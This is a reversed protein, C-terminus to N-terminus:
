SLTERQRVPFELRTAGVYPGGSGLGAAEQVMQDVDHVVVVEGGEAAAILTNTTDEVLDDVIRMLADTVLEVQEAVDERIQGRYTYDLACQCEWDRNNQSAAATRLTRFWVGVSGPHDGRDWISPARARRFVDFGTDPSKSAGTGVDQIHGSLNAEIKAIVDETAQYVGM